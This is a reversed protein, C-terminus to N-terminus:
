RSSRLLQVLIRFFPELQGAERGINGLSSAAEIDFGALTNQSKTLSEKAITLLTNYNINPIEARIKDVTAALQNGTETLNYGSKILNQYEVKLNDIVALSRDNDTRLNLVEQKIKSVTADGVHAATAASQASAESSQVLGYANVAQGLSNEYNAMNGVPVSAGGQSYALMPNLGAAKMDAMARQYSTNSMREQFARNASSEDQQMENRREGGLLSLAGGILAGLM